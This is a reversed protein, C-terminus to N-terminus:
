ISYAEHTACMAIINSTVDSLQSENLDNTRTELSLLFTKAFLIKKAYEPFAVISQNWFNSSESENHIAWARFSENQILAEFEYKSQDNQM